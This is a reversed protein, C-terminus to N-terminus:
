LHSHRRCFCSAKIPVDAAALALQLQPRVMRAESERGLRLLCEHLGHLAWVNNRHQQPRPLTDDLGLDAAYVALADEARGQELLLAGYAHRTPQMWGWPEDYPLSDDLEVARRLHRLGEDVNGRRYEVEGDLMAAAIALIDRCTNNFLTRSAPVKERAEGFLRRHREAEDPRGTNAYAVAKAYHATAATTCYLVQDAPVVLREIIDDWRGFRVLVHARMSHFGELWDAMPPSEVRLLAEPLAEELMDATELAVGSQGAFMAAYIRFHFNHARYLSYFNLGGQRRAFRADARIASTNCAVARRYDGCLIDIHTPM